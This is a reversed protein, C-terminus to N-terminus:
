TSIAPTKPKRPKRGMRTVMPESTTGEIVKANAGAEKAAIMAQLLEISRELQEDTMAKVGGSHEIQMERPVLLVLMKLFMAPNNRMVRNIAHAGGRRFARHLERITDANLERRARHSTATPTGPSGIPQVRDPRQPSKRTPNLFTGDPRRAPLTTSPQTETSKDM